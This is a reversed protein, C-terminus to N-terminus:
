IKVGFSFACAIFKKDVPSLDFLKGTKNNITNNEILLNVVDLYQNIFDNDTIESNPICRIRDKFRHRWPYKDKFKQGRIIEKRVDQITFYGYNEDILMDPAIRIIMLISCTDCLIKM